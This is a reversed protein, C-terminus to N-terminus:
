QQKILESLPEGAVLRDWLLDPDFMVGIPNAAFAGTDFWQQLAENTAFNDIQLEVNNGDPDAYYLSTTAGHNIAWWPEVGLSRLRRHTELLDTLSDYTFAVHHLGTHTHQPRETAGTNIFAVRHHEDDYTMFALQDNGFVIHGELVDVYWQVMDTLNGTSLVIHALKAPPAM